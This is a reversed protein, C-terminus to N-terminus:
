QQLVMFVMEISGVLNCLCHVIIGFYINEKKWVVYVYPLVGIIRRINQWPSWFHYLSFIVTVIVPAFGKFRQLRPLMYGNFYLEEAIPLVLSNAIVFLVVTIIILYKPYLDLQNVFNEVIFYDPVFKNVIPMTFANEWGGVLKSAIGAICFLVVVLLIAKGKHMKRNYTLACRIGIKGTEKKNERLLTIIELPALVLLSILVFCFLPPVIDRFQLTWIYLSVLIFPAWFAMALMRGTKLEKMSNAKGKQVVIDLRYEM